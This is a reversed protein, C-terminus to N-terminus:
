SALAPILHKAVTGMSSIVHEHALDAYQFMCMLRTAGIERYAEMKKKCLAVDGIIVSPVPRLAEHAEEKSVRDGAAVRRLLQVIPHDRELPIESQPANGLALSRQAAPDNPLFNGRIQSYWIEPTAHFVRPAAAVYWIAGLAAGSEVAAKESEAAHVFTFVGAERNAVHGAPREIEELGARYERILAGMQDLETLLTTGLSGVGLRGALRFSEPSSCTQWLRPHPKQLPKPIINRKPIELLPSSWSFEDQTWMKPIMRMAEILQQRSTEPDVQFTDWEGAGTRALGLEARGGSIHDLMALREAIRIPHNIKFPALVGAHGLHMRSTRTAIWALLMEPAASWSFELAGHHEVAWWCDFGAKDAFAAQDLTERFVRAEHDPVFPAARQAECFVDLKL